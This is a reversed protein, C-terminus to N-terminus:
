LRYNLWMTIWCIILENSCILLTYFTAKFYEEWDFLFQTPWLNDFLNQLTILGSKKQIISKNKWTNTTKNKNNNNKKLIPCLNISNIAKRRRYSFYYSTLILRSTLIFKFDLSFWSHIKLSDTETDGKCKDVPEILNIFVAPFINQSFDPNWNIESLFSSFEYCLVICTLLYKHFSHIVSHLCWKTWYNEVQLSRAESGSQGRGESFGRVPSKAKGLGLDKRHLIQM